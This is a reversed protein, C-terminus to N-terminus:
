CFAQISLVCEEHHKNHVDHEREMRIEARKLWSM